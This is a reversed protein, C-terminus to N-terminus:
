KMKMFQEYADEFGSEFDYKPVYDVELTVNLLDIKTSVADSERQLRKVIGRVKDRDYDITEVSRVNYYYATQNGEANILYDMGRSVTESCKRGALEKLCDAAEQRAKNAAIAADIDFEASEKARSIALSLKERENMLDLLLDIVGDANMDHDRKVEVIEDEVKPNRKSRQHEEKIRMVNENASLFAIAGNTLTTLHNQMRFAEKLVM